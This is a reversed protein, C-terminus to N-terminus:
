KDKLIYKRIAEANNSSKTMQIAQEPSVWQYALHESLIPEFEQEMALLFWHERCYTVNPAYKYRFHPFIEFEISENCDFLATSNESIELRVEEWLERIATKKPTEGSEITGTVSQWFDPDDQRQLMLVRNTDKTYIVVLVSQNNKYQMMLFAALDSRM